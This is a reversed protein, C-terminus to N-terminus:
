PIVRTSLFSRSPAPSPLTSPSTPRSFPLLIGDTHALGPYKQGGGATLCILRVKDTEITAIEDDAEVFDGIQKSWEVLTGESISEAMPPVKVVTDAYRRVQMMVPLIHHRPQAIRRLPVFRAAQIISRSLMTCFIPNFFFPISSLLHFFLRQHSSTVDVNPLKAYTAPLLSLEIFFFFSTGTAPSYPL